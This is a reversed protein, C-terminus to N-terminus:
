AAGIEGSLVRFVQDFFGTALIFPQLISQGALTSEYACHLELDRSHLAADACTLWTSLWYRPVAVQPLARPHRNGMLSQRSM